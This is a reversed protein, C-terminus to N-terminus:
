PYKYRPDQNNKKLGQLVITQDESAAEMEVIKYKNKVKQLNLKYKATYIIIACDFFANHHKIMKRSAHKRRVPTHGIM